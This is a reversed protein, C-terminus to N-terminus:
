EGSVLELKITRIREKDFKDLGSIRNVSTFILGRKILLFKNPDSLKLLLKEKGADEYIMVGENVISSFQEYIDKITEKTEESVDDRLSYLSTNLIYLMDRNRGDTYELILEVIDKNALLNVKIKSDKSALAIDIDNAPKLSVMTQISKIFDDFTM